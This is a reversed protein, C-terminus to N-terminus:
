GPLATPVAEGTMHRALVMFPNSQVAELTLTTPQRKDIRPLGLKQCVANCRHRRAFSLMGESGMNGIGLGVRNYSHVQPDTLDTGVGQIDCVLLTGESALLTYHTFAEAIQLVKRRAENAEYPLPVENTIFSQGNNSNYKTFNGTLMPELSFMMAGTDSTRYSFFGTRKTLYAEPIDRRQIYVVNCDVYHLPKPVGPLKNFHEAFVRCLYLVEAENYYDKEVVDSITRRFMKAVHVQEDGTDPNVEVVEFCVRM